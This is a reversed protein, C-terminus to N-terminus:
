RWECKKVDWVQEREFFGERVKRPHVLPGTLEVGKELLAQRVQQWYSSRVWWCRSKESWGGAKLTRSFPRARGSRAHRARHFTTKLFEVLEADYDFRLAVAPSPTMLEEGEFPGDDDDGPIFPDVRVTAEIGREQALRSGAEEAWKYGEAQLRDAFSLMAETPHPSIDFANPKDCDNEWWARAARDSTRCYDRITEATEGCWECLEWAQQANMDPSDDKM